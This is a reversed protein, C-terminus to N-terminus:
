VSLAHPKRFRGLLYPLATLSLITAGHLLISAVDAASAGLGFNLRIHGLSSPFSSRSAQVRATAGMLAVLVLGLTPWAANFRQRATLCAVAWGVLVPATFYLMRGLGFYVIAVGGIHVFPTDSAPLFIQWGSWLISCAVVYAAVLLLVPALSFIAWPARNCWSQFRPSPPAPHMEVHEQLASWLVNVATPLDRSGSQSQLLAEFEPGYRARWSRPYLRTLQHALRPTM